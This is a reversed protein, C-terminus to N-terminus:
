GSECDRLFAEPHWYRNDNTSKLKAIETDNLVIHNHKYSNTKLYIIDSLSWNLLRKMMVLSEDFREMILVLLFESNLKDLYRKVQTRRIGSKFGFDKGMTNRTHSFFGPDYHSPYNILNHVFNERPIKKLYGVHFVDRYYCASSIIRSVPERVIGIKVSDAPLLSDFWEKEYVTHCAFIDYHEGNKLPMKQDASHLYNRTKPLLINLNHKLGFRFFLNQMTTSGAKHVKLFAVHTTM